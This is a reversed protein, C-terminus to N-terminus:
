SMTLKASEVSFRRERESHEPYSFHLNINVDHQPHHEEECSNYSPTHPRSHVVEISRQRLSDNDADAQQHEHEARPCDAKNDSQCANRALGGQFMGFAGSLAVAGIPVTVPISPPIVAACVICTVGGVVLTGCLLFKFLKSRTIM